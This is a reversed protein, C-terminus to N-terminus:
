EEHTRIEVDIIDVQADTLAAPITINFESLIWRYMAVANSNATKAQNMLQTKFADIKTQTFKNTPETEIRDILEEADLLNKDVLAIQDNVYQLANRAIIRPTNNVRAM